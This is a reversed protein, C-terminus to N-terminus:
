SKGSKKEIASLTGDFNAFTSRRKKNIISSRPSYLLSM